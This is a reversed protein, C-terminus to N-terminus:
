GQAALQPAMVAAGGTVAGNAVPVPEAPNVSSVAQEAVPSTEVGDFWRMAAEDLSAAAADIRAMLVHFMILTPIAVVLGGATATWAEYIGQALKETKGLSEGSAAVVTFTRIMGLVTGLLGLMTAAQPLASLIRMRQRLKGVERQGAEAVRREQVERSEGSSGAAAALVAGLPSGDARCTALAQRPVRRMTSVNALLSPPSVRARRTVILREVIITVAVLSVVALPIMVWGGKVVMDWVTGVISPPAAPTVLQGLVLMSANLM